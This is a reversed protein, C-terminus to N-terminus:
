GMLNPFPYIKSALKHTESQAWPLSLPLPLEEISDRKKTRKPLSSPRHMPKKKKILLFSGKLACTSKVKEL